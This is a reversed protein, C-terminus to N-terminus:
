GNFLRTLASRLDPYTIFPKPNQHDWSSYQDKGRGTFLLINTGVGAAQGASIDTLADGIMISRALDIKYKLAAQLILGPKPKRCACLDDPSHPCMFVDTIKGGANKIREVVQNNIDEALKFSLLGRGIASQNTVIFIKPSQNKINAIAELAQHYFVVDSLSRVYSSKNEIIVGDRDLFIATDM